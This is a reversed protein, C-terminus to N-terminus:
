VEVAWMAADIGCQGYAIKFFGQDGWTTNWSNKCIWFRQRDDYGVCCVCHGGQSGGSVHHYVGTHYNFFDAYVTFCAILPGHNALRVKMDTQSTLNHWAKIRTMRKQWDSCRKCPQDGPTYPFCAADVVGPNQCAALAGDPWWGTNCSRGAPLGHCYFLDAESLDVALGPNNGSIRIASEIGAVTGFAVCSGCTKQDEVPTVYNGAPLPARAPASRWDFAPPYPPAAAFASASLAMFQTLGVRAAHEREELRLDTPGPSYGLHYEETVDKAQWRASVSELIPNLQAANIQVM